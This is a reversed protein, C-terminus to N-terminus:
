NYSAKFSEVVESARGIKEDLIETESLCFQQKESISRILSCVTSKLKLKFPVALIKGYRRRLNPINKTVSPFGDVKLSLSWDLWKLSSVDVSETQWSYLSVRTWPVRFLDAIIAGHLSETVIRKCQRISRIAEEVPLRPDIVKFGHSLGLVAPYDTVFHYHPVFGIDYVKEVVPWDLLGLCIAGDTIVKEAGLGLASATIPGRVFRIDWTEDVVPATKPRRIGTGMVVRRRADPASNKGLISGIGILATDDHKAELGPFLRPWLWENLDDGFNGHPSKYYYLKMKGITQLWRLLSM